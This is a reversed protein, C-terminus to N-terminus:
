PSLYPTLADRLSKPIPTPQNQSMCAIQQEGRAILEDARIYDFIMVIRSSTVEGARMSLIVEDFAFLENFYECSVRTTVMVLNQYLQELIDPAHNKLFMERCAGQWRIHNAYYVNGVLNTEEFTVIHHWKYDM